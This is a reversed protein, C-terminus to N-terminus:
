QDKVIGGTYAATDAIGYMFRLKKRLEPGVIMEPYPEAIRIRTPFFSIHFPLHIIVSGIEKHRNRMEVTHFLVVLFEQYPMLHLSRFEVIFLLNGDM